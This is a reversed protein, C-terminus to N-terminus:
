EERERPPTLQDVIAKAQFCVATIVEPTPGKGAKPHNPLYPALLRLIQRANQAASVSNTIPRKVTAL